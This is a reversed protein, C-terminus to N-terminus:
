LCIRFIVSITNIIGEVFILKQVEFIFKELWFKVQKGWKMMLLLHLNAM